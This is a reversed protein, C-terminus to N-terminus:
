VHNVTGTQTTNKKTKGINPLPIDSTNEVVKRGRTPEPLLEDPIGLGRLQDVRHAPAMDARLLRTVGSGDLGLLASLTARNINVYTLFARLAQPRNMGALLTFL